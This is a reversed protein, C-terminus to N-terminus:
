VTYKSIVYLQYNATDELFRMIEAEEITNKCYVIDVFIDALCGPGQIHNRPSQM